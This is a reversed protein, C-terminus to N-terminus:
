RIAMLPAARPTKEYLLGSQDSFVGYSCLDRVDKLSFVYGGGDTYLRLEFGEPVPPLNPLEALPHFRRTRESLRGQASNIERALTVAQERRDRDVQSESADHRCAVASPLFQRDSSGPREAGLVVTAACVTVVAVSTRRTM